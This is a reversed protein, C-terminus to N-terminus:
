ASQIKLFAEHIYERSRLVSSETTKCQVSWLDNYLQPIQRNQGLHGTTGFTGLGGGVGMLFESASIVTREKARPRQAFMLEARLAGGRARSLPQQEQPSPVLNRPPAPFFLMKEGQAPTGWWLNVKGKSQGWGKGQLLLHSFLCEM